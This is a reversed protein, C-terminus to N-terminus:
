YNTTRPSPPVLAKARPQMQDDLPNLKALLGALTPTLNHALLTGDPQILLETTLDSEPATSLLNSSIVPDSQGESRAKVNPLAPSEGAGTPSGGVPIAFLLGAFLGDRNARVMAGTGDPSGGAQGAPLGSPVPPDGALAPSAAPLGTSGLGYSNLPSLGEGRGEGKELPLLLVGASRPIRDRWPSLHVSVPSSEREGDSPSLAPTLPDNLQIALDLAQMLPTILRTELGADYSLTKDLHGGNRVVILDLSPIVLLIQHGAGAGWFADPPAAKWHRSGDMERNVWWGLGSHNPLGAHATVTEVLSAALLPRGNWNGQLLMLRGVRATANPSYAGGGWDAVLTLGDLPTATGYGVSWESEPVGLPELIRHRLLSRLDAQTSGSLSATVCYSLLAMGPNSYRAKTGPAELVPALDRALSFPDRPPAPRKWFDGKWGTLREHPLDNEEADEIGSTHTALHRVTIRKKMPHNAWQPVFLGAPDDPKIRGDNMALMLSVGGVLAKAMSATYHKTTRSYGPAYREFVMRDNRIVVFAATNREKLDGWLTEMKTADM